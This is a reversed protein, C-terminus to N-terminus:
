EKKRQAKIQWGGAATQQWYYLEAGLDMAAKFRIRAAAVAAPDHGDFVDLVRQFAAPNIAEQGNALVLVDPKNPADKEAGFWIPMDGGYPDGACGHPVWSDDQYTWLATDLDKQVADDGVVVVARKGAQYVKALLRPLADQLPSRQLHYFDVRLSSCDTASMEGWFLCLFAHGIM